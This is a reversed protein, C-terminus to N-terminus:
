EFTGEDPFFERSYWHSNEYENGITFADTKGYANNKIVSKRNSQIKM